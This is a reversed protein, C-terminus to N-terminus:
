SNEPGCHTVKGLIISTKGDYLEEAHKFDDASSGLTLFQWRCKTQEEM